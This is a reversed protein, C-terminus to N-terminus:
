VFEFFIGHTGLMPDFILLSNLFTFLSLSMVKVDALFKCLIDFCVSAVVEYDDQFTDIPSNM